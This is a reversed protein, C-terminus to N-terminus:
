ARRVCHLLTHGVGLNDHQAQVDFGAAALLRLLDESRYM